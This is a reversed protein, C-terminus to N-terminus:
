SGRTGQAAAARARNRQTDTTSSSLPPHLPEIIFAERERDFSVVLASAGKQLGNEIDCRVQVVLGSGGDAIEAQGFRGDVRTTTLTCAQGIFDHRGRASQITFIPGFPRSLLSGFSLGILLSLATAGGLIVGESVAGGLYPVAFAMTAFSTIWGFLVIFSGSVTIPVKAIGLINLLKLLVAAVISGEAAEASGKAAGELGETAGKAAGELGETAGKAAGELGETAGKAVGALGESAGKAAGSLGETAGKAMGSLGETAGKAM